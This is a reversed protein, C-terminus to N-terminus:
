GVVTDILTRPYFKMTNYDTENIKELIQRKADQRCHEDINGIYYLALRDSRLRKMRRRDLFRTVFVLAVNREEELRATVKKIKANTNVDIFDLATAHPKNFVPSPCITVAVNIISM